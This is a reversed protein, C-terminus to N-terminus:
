KKYFPIKQMFYKGVYVFIDSVLLKQAAKEGTSKHQDKYHLSYLMCSLVNPTFKIELFCLPWLKTPSDKSGFEKNRPLPFGRDKLQL